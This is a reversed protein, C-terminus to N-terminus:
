GTLPSCAADSKRCQRQLTRSPPEGFMARYEASFRGLHYFGSDHAICAVTTQEPAAILLKCRALHLRRLRLFALPTLGFTDHFAYELTRLSVGAIEGLEPAKVSAPNADRLYDLVRDLGRSRKSRGTRPADPRPLHAADALRGILEEEMSQVAAPHRLWAPAGWTEEILELLWRGFREIEVPDAPLLHNEAAQELEGALEATLHSRLLSLKVLVLLHTQGSDITADLGGPLTAPFGDRSWPAKWYTSRSGLMMPVSFAFMGPPSLGRLRCRLDFRERYLTIGPTRLYRIRYGFNGAEDPSHVLDWPQVLREYLWPDAATLEGAPPPGASIATVQEDDAPNIVQYIESKRFGSLRFSVM